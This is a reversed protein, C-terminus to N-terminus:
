WETDTTLTNNKYMLLVKLTDLYSVRTDSTYERNCQSASLICEKILESISEKDEIMSILSDLYFKALEHLGESTTNVAAGILDHISPSRFAISVMATSADGLVLLNETEMDIDVYALTKYASELDVEELMERMEDTATIDFLAEIKPMWYYTSSETISTFEKNIVASTSKLNGVAKDTLHQILNYKVEDPLGRLYGPDEIAKVTKKRRKSM